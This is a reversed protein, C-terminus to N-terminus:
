AFDGLWEVPDRLAAGARTEGERLIASMAVPDFTLTDLEIESAPRIVHLSRVDTDEVPSAASAFARAITDDAVGEAKLAARVADHYRNTEAYRRAHRLDNLVVEQTFLDIVRLLVGTSKEFSGPKPERKKPSLIIAYIDTAGANIAAKIPAIERVGGDVFQHDSDKPISIPPMFVPICASALVARMIDSRSRMRRYRVNEDPEPAERTHHYVTAGSQLEVTCVLLQKDSRVLRRARDDDIHTSILTALPEVDFVSTTALADAVRKRAVVNKTRVSTYVEELLVIDGSVVLPAILAGTSTGVVIDFDLGTSLLHKIAGVAFAGKSGGGSVVLATKSM